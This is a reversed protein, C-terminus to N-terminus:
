DECSDERIAINRATHRTRSFSISTKFNLSAACRVGSYSHVFIFEKMEHPCELIDFYIALGKTYTTGATPSVKNNM